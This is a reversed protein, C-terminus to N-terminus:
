HLQKFVQAVDQNREAADTLTPLMSPWSATKLKRAMQTLLITLDERLDGTDPSTVRKGLKSCADLMLDAKSQWHRYITTKAVGSRKAIGDISVGSFGEESLLRYTERLVKERSAEVRRDVTKHIGQAM